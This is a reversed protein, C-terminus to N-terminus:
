RQRFHKRLARRILGTVSPLAARPAPAKQAFPLLDIDSDRLVAAIAVAATAATVATLAMYDGTATAASFSLHKSIASAPKFSQLGSRARGRCAGLFDIALAFSRFQYRSATTGLNKQGIHRTAARLHAQQSYEFAVQRDSTPRHGVCPSPAPPLRIAERRMGLGSM